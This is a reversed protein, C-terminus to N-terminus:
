SITPVSKDRGALMVSASSSTIFRDRGSSMVRETLYLAITIVTQVAYLLDAQCLQEEIFVSLLKSCDETSYERGAYM